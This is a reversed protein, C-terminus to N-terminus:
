SLSVPEQAVSALATARAWRDAELFDDLTANTNLRHQSITNKVVSSIDGFRIKGAVFAEVAIENAANM